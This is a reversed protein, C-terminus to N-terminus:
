SFCGGTPSFRGTKLLVPARKNCRETDAPQALANITVAFQIPLSFFANAFQMNLKNPPTGIFAAPLSIEPHLLV